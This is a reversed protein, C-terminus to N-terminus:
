AHALTPACRTDGALMLLFAVTYAVFAVFSWTAISGGLFPLRDEYLPPQPSLDCREM